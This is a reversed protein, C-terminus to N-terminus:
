GFFVCAQNSRALYKVQFDSGNSISTQKLILEDNTVFDEIYVYPQLPTLEECATQLKSKIKKKLFFSDSVEVAMTEEDLVPALPYEQPFDRAPAVEELIMQDSVPVSLEIISDLLSGNGPLEITPQISDNGATAM